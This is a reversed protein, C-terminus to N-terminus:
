EVPRSWDYARTCQAVTISFEGYFRDRGAQQARRHRADNRWADHHEASDFVIVSVREGDDATFGKFDVFGPMAQAAALMEAAMERYDDGADDRLRSRFITVVHGPRTGAM